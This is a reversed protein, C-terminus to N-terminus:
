PKLYQFIIEQYRYILRQTHRITYGYKDAIEKYTLGDILRDKLMGRITKKHIYADIIPEIDNNDYTM